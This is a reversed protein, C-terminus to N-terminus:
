VERCDGIRYQLPAVISAAMQHMMSNIDTVTSSIQNLSEAANEIRAVAEDSAQRGEESVQEATPITM